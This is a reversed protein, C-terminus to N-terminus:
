VRLIGGEWDTRARGIYSERWRVRAIPAALGTRQRLVLVLPAASFPVAFRVRAIPAALGTPQRLVLVLPAVSFPVAFHSSSHPEPAIHNLSDRRRGIPTM